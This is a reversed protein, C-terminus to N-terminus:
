FGASIQSRAREAAVSLSHPDPGADLLQRSLNVLVHTVPIQWYLASLDRVTAGQAGVGPALYFRSASLEIAEADAMVGMVAGVSEASQHAMEALLMSEVSAEGTSGTGGVLAKQIPRGEPNSSRVVVFVGRGGAQAAEFFPSLAAFGLYPSVTLADVSLPGDGLYANAYAANTSAIDGRKADAICLLGAARADDILSELARVGASGFREFFALNFKAASANAGVSEIIRAGLAYAGDADDALEWRALAAASPDVGACLPGRTAIAAAMRAAFSDHPDAM